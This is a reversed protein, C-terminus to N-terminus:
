LYSQCIHHWTQMVSLPTKRWIVKLKRNLNSSYETLEQISVRLQWWNIKMYSVFHVKSKRVYSKDKVSFVIQGLYLAILQYLPLFWKKKIFHLCLVGKYCVDKINTLKNLQKGKFFSTFIYNILFSILALTIVVEFIDIHFAISYNEWNM